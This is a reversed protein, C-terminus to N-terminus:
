KNKRKLLLVTGITFPVLPLLLVLLTPFSLSGLHMSNRYASKPLINLNIPKQNQLYQTITLLFESAYTQAYVAEDMFVGANGIIFLKSVEGNTQMFSSLLAVDYVGEADIEQQELSVANDLYNRLYAAGTKLIGEVQVDKSLAPTKQFARTGALLLVDKSQEILSHTLASNQMYPILIYPAGSYYADTVEPKSICMGELQEIGYLKLFANFNTLTLPDVYQTIVFFSGGNQSFELLANLEENSFDRQPSLIFLPAAPSLTDKLLTVEQIMYNQSQMQLTFPEITSLPLEGHGTLIQLTPLTDQSVYLIAETIKKEYMYGSINYYGTDMNYAYDFYDSKLLVRARNTDHSLVVLCDSSIQSVDVIDEFQSFFTPTKVLDVLEFHVHESAVDYKKLISSLEETTLINDSSSSVLYLSVDKDLTNLVEKTVDSQHLFQNYSFDKKLAYANELSTAFINILLILAIFLVTLLLSFSGLRFKKSCFFHTTKEKLTAM